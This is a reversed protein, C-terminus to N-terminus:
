VEGLATLIHTWIRKPAPPHDYRRSWYQWEGGIGSAQTKLPGSMDMAVLAPRTHIASPVVFPDGAHRQVAIDCVCGAISGKTLTVDRVVTYPLGDVGTIVEVTHGLSRLYEDLDDATM